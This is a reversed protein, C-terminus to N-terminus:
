IFTLITELQTHIYQIILLSSIEFHNLFYIIQTNTCTHIGSKAISKHWPNLTKLEYFLQDTHALFQSGTCIRLAKKQLIYIYNIKNKACTAWVINCYTIYPLILSHCLLFLAKQPLYIKTKYLIGVNRSICTTIHHIHENWSLHEDIFTGLFKAYNKRQLPENDILINDPLETANTSSLKFVNNLM